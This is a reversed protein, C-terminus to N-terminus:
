PLFRMVSTARPTDSPLAYNWILSMEIGHIIKVMCSCKCYVLVFGKIDIM